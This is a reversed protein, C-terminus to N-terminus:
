SSQYFENFKAFQELYSLFDRFDQDFGLINKRRAMVNVDWAGNSM